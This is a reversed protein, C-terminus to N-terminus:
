HNRGDPGVYTGNFYETPARRDPNVEQELLGDIDAIDPVNRSAQRLLDARGTAWLLEFTERKKFKAGYPLLLEFWDIVPRNFYLRSIVHDLTLAEERKPDAGFRLLLQTINYHGQQIAHVLMYTGRLDWSNPDAHEELWKHVQHYNGEVVADRLPEPYRSPMVASNRIRYEYWEAYAHTPARRTTLDFKATLRHTYICTQTIYNLSQQDMYSSCLFLLEHPLQLLYYVDDDLLEPSSPQEPPSPSVSAPEDSLTPCPSRPSTHSGGCLKRFISSLRM